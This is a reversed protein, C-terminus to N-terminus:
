WKVWLAGQTCYGKFSIMLKRSEAPAEGGSSCNSESTSPKKTETVSEHEDEESHLQISSKILLWIYTLDSATRSLHYAIPILLACFISFMVHQTGQPEILGGYAPGYLIVCALISKLVAFFAATLNSVANGGFVHMEVQELFYMLFTNIQPFLGLSFLIPFALLVISLIYEVMQYFERSHLTVGFLDLHCSSSTLEQAMHHAGILLTTCLCFYIPRSYSVTKNFGHIPSAADPQVSKILSYQSGAIVFCFIFAFIDEYFGLHLVLAGLVSVLFTLVTALVVQCWSTDRDFLALLQLRDMHIKFTHKGVFNLSFKYYKPMPKLKTNDLYFRSMEGFTDDNLEVRGISLIAAQVSPRSSLSKDFGHPISSSDMFDHMSLSNSISIVPNECITGSDFGMERQNGSFNTESGTSRGGGGMSNDFSKQRRERSRKVKPQTAHHHFGGDLNRPRFNSLNAMPYELQQGYMMMHYDSRSNFFTLIPTQGGSVDVPATPRRIVGRSHTILPYEDVGASMRRGMKPIAGLNRGAATSSAPASRDEEATSIEPSRSFERTGDETETTVDVSINNADMSFDFWIPNKQKERSTTLLMDKSSASAEEWDSFPSSKSGDKSSQEFRVNGRSFSADEKKSEGKLSGNGKRHRMGSGKEEVNEISIRHFELLPSRSGNNETDSDTSQAQIREIDSESETTTSHGEQVNKAEEEDAEKKEEQGHERKDEEEPENDETDSSSSDFGSAPRMHAEDAQEAIPYVLQEAKPDKPCLNLHPNRSLSKSPPPLVVHHPNRLPQGGIVEVSNPQPPIYPALPHPSSEIAASKIRRVSIVSSPLVKVKSSGAIPLQIASMTSNSDRRMQANPHHHMLYVKGSLDAASINEIALESKTTYDNELCLYSALNQLQGGHTSIYCNNPHICGLSMNSMNKRATKSNDTSRHRQLKVPSVERENDSGDLRVEQSDLSGQRQIFARPEPAEKIEETDAKADASDFSKSPALKEPGYSSTPCVDASHAVVVSSQLVSSNYLGISENSESSNKRHVDVKFDSLSNTVLYSGLFIRLLLCHPDYHCLLGSRRTRSPYIRSKM